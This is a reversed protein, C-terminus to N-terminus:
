GLHVYPSLALNMEERKSNISRAFAIIGLNHRPILSQRAGLDYVALHIPECVYVIATVTFDFLVCVFSDNHSTVPLNM